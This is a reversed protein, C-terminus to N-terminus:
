VGPQLHEVGRCKGRIETNGKQRDSTRFMLRVKDICADSELWMFERHDAICARCQDQMPNQRRFEEQQNTIIDWHTTSIPGPPKSTHWRAQQANLRM